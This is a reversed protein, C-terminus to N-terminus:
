EDKMLVAAAASIEECSATVEEITASISGIHHNVEQVKQEVETSIQIINQIELGVDGQSVQTASVIGRSQEALHSVEGAVVAFGKGAEGARAAEIAANLALLNTQDAIGVIDGSARSFDQTKDAVKDISRRLSKAIELLNSAEVTINEISKTNEQSGVSVQGVATIIDKMQRHLLANKEEREAMFAKLEKMTREIEVNKEAIKGHEIEVSRRAYDICSEPVNVGVKVAQAFRKCNGYGCAFCNLNRSEKTVKHLASFVDELDEDRLMGDVKRNQYARRFDELRLSRDFHLFPKYRKGIVRKVMNKELRERKLANTKADIDDIEVNKCTGTGHNCGFTCNLIDVIEPVRKGAELRAQYEKLYSYAHSPNEIQKIWLEPRHLTVNEKLGGPRSFTIGMGTPLEDFGAPTYQGFDVRKEKCYAALKKFTVNYQILNNTNADGIEDAKAVCPSLFAISGQHRLYKKLYIAMCLLPSHIPALRQILEPMYKEIYNVVVPCPQSIISDLRQQKMAKLYAWTTIEAGFSVDYIRQVGCHKLFGFLQDARAFNMQAAPAALLTIKEGKQLAAFFDATDDAYDRAEHDCCGICEGCHICYTEDVKVKRNGNEDIFARNALDVPCNTICKNCGTCKNYDTILREAVSM